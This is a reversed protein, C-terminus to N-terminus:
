NLRPLPKSSSSPATPAPSCRRKPPPNTPPPWRGSRTTLFPCAPSNVPRPLATRSRAAPTNSCAGPSPPCDPGLLPGPRPMAPTIPGPTQPGSGAAVRDPLQPDLDIGLAAFRRRRRGPRRRRVVGATDPDGLPSRVLVLGLVALIVTALIRREVAARTANREESEWGVRAHDIM